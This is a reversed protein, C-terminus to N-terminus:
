LDITEGSSLDEPKKNEIDAEVEGVQTDNVIEQEKTEHVAESLASRLSSLDVGKKKRPQFNQKPAMAKALSIPAEKPEILKVESEIRPGKLKRDVIKPPSLKREKRLVLCNTCYVPRKGDPVFNVETSVGCNSCKTVTKSKKPITMDSDKTIANKDNEAGRAMVWKSLKEEVDARNTGYREQSIKIIKERSSLNPLPWLPLTTASFPRSTVGDITLKLYIQAFSLNVLDNIEFEPSFETELFEADSAGVRFMLITGVNGFIADRVRTNTDTVLQGIYQHALILSLRYKRAESLITAFSDTAFNQFEDVYLYFDERENEPVDVRSMAALQLKTILMAGLLQSADEGIRGKSLDVILIKKQDMAEKIDFSSKVQGIINRILPSSIFQGVKNQIPAVAEERFRDPYKAFENIWFSKVSPDTVNEVVQLRYDKDALMRNIGLLTSSPYELLALVANNLIYEMRASWVDPWIKKFVGMLGSAILHRQQGEVTKEMVNFAVPNDLDAPNFFIVDNIRHPPVYDIMLQAFEGHPDIIACGEGNLIDQIALNELLTSKGMGTKGVVYFHRRRDNRKIGFRKKENRFNTESFFTINNNDEPM